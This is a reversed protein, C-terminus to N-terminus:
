FIVKGDEYKFNMTENNEDIIKITNRNILEIKLKSVVFITEIVEMIKYQEVTNVKM